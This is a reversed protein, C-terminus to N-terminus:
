LPPLKISWHHVNVIKWCRKLSVKNVNFLFALTDIGKSDYFAATNNETEIICRTKLHFKLTKSLDFLLGTYGFVSGHKHQICQKLWSSKGEACLAQREGRTEQWSKGVLANERAPMLVLGASCPLCQATQRHLQFSLYLSFDFLRHRPLADEGIQM